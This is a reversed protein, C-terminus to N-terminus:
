EKYDAQGKKWYGSGHVRCTSFAAQTKLVALTSRVESSEAAVFILSHPALEITGLARSLAHPNRADRYLWRVVLRADTRLAQQESPDQIEVVVTAEAGVPLAEVISAIAPLGTEDGLLVHHRRGPDIPVGGRPHPASVEFGVGCRAQKAWASVYGDDGHLVFDIDLQGSCADFHRVTYARGPLRRGEADHVFVKLWQAPLDARLGPVHGANVTLRVLRPTLRQVALVEVPYLTYPPQVSDM